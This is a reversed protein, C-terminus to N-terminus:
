RMSGPGKSISSRLRKMFSMHLCKDSDQSLASTQWEPFLSESASGALEDHCLGSPSRLAFRDHPHRISALIDEVAARGSIPQEGRCVKLIVTREQLAIEHQLPTCIDFESAELEPVTCSEYQGM